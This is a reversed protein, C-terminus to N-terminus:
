NWAWCFVLARGLIGTCASPMRLGPPLSTFSSVKNGDGWERPKDNWPSFYTTETKQSTLKKKSKSCVCVCVCVCVCQTHTYITCENNALQLKTIWSHCPFGNLPHLHFKEFILYLISHSPLPCSPISDFSICSFSSFFSGLLYSYSIDWSHVHSCAHSM